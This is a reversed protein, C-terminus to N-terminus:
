RAIAEIGNSAYDELRSPVPLQYSQIMSVAQAALSEVASSVSGEVTDLTGSNDTSINSIESAENIIENIEREYFSQLQSRLSDAPVKLDADNGYWSIVAQLDEIDQAIKTRNSTLGLDVGTLKQKINFLVNGNTTNLQTAAGTFRMRQSALYSDFAAMVQSLTTRLITLNSEIQDEQGSLTSSSDLSAVKEAIRGMSNAMNAQAILVAQSVSDGQSASLSATAATQKAYSDIVSMADSQTQNMTSSSSNMQSLVLGSQMALSAAHLKVENAMSTSANDISGVQESLSSATTGLQGVMNSVSSSATSANSIVGVSGSMLGSLQAYPIVLQSGSGVANAKNALNQIQGSITSIASLIGGDRIANPSDSKAAADAAALDSQLSSVLSEFTKGFSESLVSYDNYYANASQNFYAPIGSINNMSASETDSVHLSLDSIDPDPHIGYKALDDMGLPDGQEIPYAAANFARIQQILKQGEAPLQMIQNYLPTNQSGLYDNLQRMLTDVNGAVARIQDMEGVSIGGISINSSAKLTNVQSLVSSTSDSASSSASALFSKLTAQADNVTDNVQGAVYQTQDTVSQNLSNTDVTFNTGTYNGFSSDFDSKLKNLTGVASAAVTGGPSTGNLQNKFNDVASQMQSTFTVVTKYVGTAAGSLFTGIMDDTQNAFSATYSNSTGSQAIYARVAVIADDASIGQQQLNLLIQATMNAAVSQNNMSATTVYQDMQAQVAALANAQATSLASAAASSPVTKTGNVVTMAVSNSGGFASSASSGIQSQVAQGASQVAKNMQNTADALAGGMFQSEYAAANAADGLQADMANVQESMDALNSFTDSGVADPAALGISNILSVDKSMQSVVSMIIQNLTNTTNSKWKTSNTVSQGVLTHELNGLNTLQSKLTSQVQSDYDLIGRTSAVGSSVQSSANSINSTVGNALPSYYMNWTSNPTANSASLLTGITGLTTNYQSSLYGRQTSSTSNILSLSSNQYQSQKMAASSNFGSIISSGTSNYGSLQKAIFTAINTATASNASPLDVNTLNKVLIAISDLASGLSSTLSGTTSSSSNLSASAGNLADWATYLQNNMQSVDSNLNGVITNFVTQINQNTSDDQSQQLGSFWSAMQTMLSDQLTEMNEVSGMFKDNTVNLLNMYANNVSLAWFYEMTLLHKVAQDSLTLSGNNTNTLNFILSTANNHSDTFATELKIQPDRLFTRSGEITYGYATDTSLAAFDTLLYQFRRSLCASTTADQNPMDCECPDHRRRPPPPPPPSYGRSRARSFWWWSSKDGVELFSDLLALQAAASLKDMEGTEDLARLSALDDRSVRGEMRGALLLSVVILLWMSYFALFLHM